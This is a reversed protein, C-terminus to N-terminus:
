KENLFQELQTKLFNIIQFSDKKVLDVNKVKFKFINGGGMSADLGCESLTVREPKKKVLFFDDYENVSKNIVEFGEKDCIEKLRELDEAKM